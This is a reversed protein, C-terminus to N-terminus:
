FGYKEKGVVQGFLSGDGYFLDVMRVDYNSGDYGSDYMVLCVKKVNKM